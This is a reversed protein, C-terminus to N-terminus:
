APTVQGRRVYRNLARAFATM